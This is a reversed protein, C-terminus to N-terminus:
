NCIDLASYKKNKKVIFIGESWNPTYGKAFVNKFKSYRVHDGVKFKPDKKMLNKMINVPACRPSPDRPDPGRGM